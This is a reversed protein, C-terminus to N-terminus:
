KLNAYERLNIILIMLIKNIVNQKYWKNYTILLIKLRINVLM